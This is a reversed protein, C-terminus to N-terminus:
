IRRGIGPARAEPTGQIFHCLYSAPLFSDTQGSTFQVTYRLLEQNENDSCTKQYGWLTTHLKRTKENLRRSRPKKKEQKWVSSTIFTLSNWYPNYSLNWSLHEFLSVCNKSETTSLNRYWKILIITKKLYFECLMFNM